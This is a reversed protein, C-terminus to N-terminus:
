TSYLLVKNTIWQLYLPTYMDMGFERDRGGIRGVM